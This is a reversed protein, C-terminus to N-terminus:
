HTQFTKHYLAGVQDTVRSCIQLCRRMLLQNQIRVCLEHYNLPQCPASFNKTVTSTIYMTTLPM